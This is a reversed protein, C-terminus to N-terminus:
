RQGRYQPLKAIFNELDVRSIMTRRGIKVARREGAGLLAYIKTSGLKLLKKAEPVTYLVADQM